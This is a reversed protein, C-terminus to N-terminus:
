LAIENNGSEQAQQREHERERMRLAPPMPPRGINHNLLWAQCAQQWDRMRPLATAYFVDEVIPMRGENSDATGALRSGPLDHMRRTPDGGHELLWYLRDFRGIRSYWSLVTDYGNGTYLTTDLDAGSLVLAQVNDWHGSAFAVYLLPQGAANRGNPDGGRMLLETLYSSDSMSAAPVLASEAAVGMSQMRADPTAGANLLLHLGEPNHTIVPWALIPRGLRDFLTDPDIGREHVMKDIANWDRRDVARAMLLGDGSFYAAPDREPDARPIAPMPLLVYVCVAVAPLALLVNLLMRPHWRPRTSPQILAAM